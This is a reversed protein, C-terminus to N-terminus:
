RNTVKLVHPQSSWAAADHCMTKMPGESTICAAEDAAQQAAEAAASGAAAAAATAAAAVAAALAKAM